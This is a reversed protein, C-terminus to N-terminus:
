RGLRILHSTRSLVECMRCPDPTEAGTACDITFGRPAKCQQCPRVRWDTTQAAMPMFPKDVM